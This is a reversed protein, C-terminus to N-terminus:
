NINYGRIHTRISTATATTNLPADFQPVKHLEFEIISDCSEDIAAWIETIRTLQHIKNNKIKELRICSM